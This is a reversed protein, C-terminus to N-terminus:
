TTLRQQSLGIKTPVQVQLGVAHKEGASLRKDPNLEPSHSPLHFVEAQRKHEALWAKVPKSHHVCLDGLVRCVQKALDKIM